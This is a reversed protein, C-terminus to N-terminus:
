FRGGWSLGVGNPLISPALTAASRRHARRKRLVTQDVVVLVVGTALLGAGIGTLAGGLPRRHVTEIFRASSAQLRQEPEEALVIVGGITVGLGVVLSGIGAYGAAGLRKAEGDVPRNGVASDGSNGNGRRAATSEPETASAHQAEQEPGASLKARLRDALVETEDDVKALIESDKCAECVFERQSGADGILSLTGKTNVGYEGYVSLETRVVYAADESVVFGADELVSTQNDTVWRRMTKWTQDDAPLSTEPAVSVEVEIRVATANAEPESNATATANATASMSLSGGLALALITRHRNM